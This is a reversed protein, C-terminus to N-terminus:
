ASIGSIKVMTYQQRHGRTRRYKRRRKFKFILVKDDKGHSVVEAAVHAGEVYPKGLKFQNPGSILLVKDFDIKSGVEAELKPIKIVVQDEVPFQMGGTEIIARM